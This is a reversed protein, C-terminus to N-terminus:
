LANAISGVIWVAAVVVAMDLLILGIMPWAEKGAAADLPGISSYDPDPM